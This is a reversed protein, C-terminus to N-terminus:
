VYTFFIILTKAVGRAVGGQFAVFCTASVSGRVKIVISDVHEESSDGDLCWAKM